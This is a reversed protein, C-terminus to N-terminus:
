NIPTQRKTKKRLEEILQLIRKEELDNAMQRLQKAFLSYKKDKRELADAKQFINRMNGIRALKYLEEIEKPPPYVLLSESTRDILRKKSQNTKDTAKFKNPQTVTHRLFLAIEQILERRLVPKRLFGDMSQRIESEKFETAASFAIIPIHKKLPMARIKKCIEMGNLDPLKLDMLILDYKQDKVKQVAALGTEAVDIEFNFDKLQLTVLEHNVPIDDVILIQAQNFRYNQPSFAIPERGKSNNPIKVDKLQVTFIAGKRRQSQVSIEGDLLRVLKQCITLGLGTGGYQAFDQGPIQEFAKFVSTQHDIPIGIGSDEVKIRLNSIKSSSEQFKISSKISLKVFGSETFKFANDLLNFIVQRLRTEDVILTDPLLPDIQIIFELSKERIKKEFSSRFSNILWKIQCPRKELMLTGSEIKAVNITDQILRLLYQASSIISIIFRKDRKSKCEELLIESFGLIANMPTRIEHSMSALFEGKALSAKEASEKAQKLEKTKQQIRQDFEDYLRANDLASAMQSSLLELIELRDSIFAHSSLNNELYVVGTVEGRHLLPKCLISKPCKEQIYRDQLFRSDTVADNLIVVKKNRLSFNIVTTALCPLEKLQTSPTLHLPSAINSRSLNEDICVETEIVWQGAKEIILLGRQAGSNEIVINMVTSVLKGLVIKDAVAKSAKLISVLDVQDLYNSHSSPKNKVHKPSQFQASGIDTIGPYKKHLQNVKAAAGWRKYCYIAESLNSQALREKANKFYFNAALEYSLAEEHLFENAQAYHIAQEYQDLAEWHRNTLREIQACVLHYKHKYNVPCFRSWRKLKKQNEKVKALLKKDIPSNQSIMQDLLALSQYFCFVGTVHLGCAMDLYPEIANANRVAETTYRFHVCLFLKALHIMLIGLGDNEKHHNKLAIRENYVDGMLQIPSKSPTILNLITQHFMANWQFPLDQKLNQIVQSIDTIEKELNRLEKGAYLSHYSYGLRAMCAYEFDGSEMAVRAANKLPGLTSQLPDKWHRIGCLFRTLTKAESTKDDIRDLLNIALRGFSYGEEIHGTNGCLILGMTAFLSATENTYGYKISLSVLEIIIRPMISSGSTLLPLLIRNVIKNAAIYNPETMRPLNLFSHIPISKYKKLFAKALKKVDESSNPKPFDLGM